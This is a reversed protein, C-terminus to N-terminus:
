AKAGEAYAFIYTAFMAVLFTAAIGMIIGGSTSSSLGEDGEDALVNDEAAVNASFDSETGSSANGSSSGSSESVDKTDGTDIEVPLLDVLPIIDGKGDLVRIPRSLDQKVSIGPFDLAKEIKASGMLDLKMGLEVRCSHYKCTPVRATVAVKFGSQM